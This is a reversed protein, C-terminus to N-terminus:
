REVCYVNAMVDGVPTVAAASVAHRYGYHHIDAADPCHEVVATLADGANLINYPLHTEDYEGGGGNFNMRFYSVSPDEITALHTERFDFILAGGTHQWALALTKRWHTTLHFFGLALVLDFTRDGLVSFDNEAIHHFDHDPHRTKARAIMDANVDLGTYSFRGLNEALLGVFGGQACGIDLVSIGDRLRPDIFFRESPYYEATTHRHSDFFDLVRPLGWAASQRATQDEATDAPASM